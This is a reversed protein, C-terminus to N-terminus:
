SDVLFIINFCSKPLMSCLTQACCVSPESRTKTHKETSAEAIRHHSDRYLASSLSKIPRRRVFLSIYVSQVDSNKGLPLGLLDSLEAQYLSECWMIGSTSFLVCFGHQLWAYASCFCKAGREWFAAEIQPFEEAIQYHAFDQNIKEVYYEQRYSIM